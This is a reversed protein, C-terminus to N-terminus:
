GILQSVFNPIAKAFLAVAIGIAGYILYNKASTTEKEGGGSSLYLWAAYLFFLVSVALLLAFVFNIVNNLLGTIDLTDKPTIAGLVTIKAASGRTDGQAMALLPLIVTLLLTGGLFIKKMALM